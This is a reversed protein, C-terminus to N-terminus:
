LLLLVHMLCIRAHARWDGGIVGSLSEVLGLLQSEFGTARRVEAAAGGFPLQSLVLFHLEILGLFLVRIASLVIEYILNFHLLLRLIIVVVVMVVVMGFLSHRGTFQVALAQHLHGFGVLEHTLPISYTVDTGFWDVGLGVGM